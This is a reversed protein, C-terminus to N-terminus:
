RVEVVGAVLRDDQHQGRKVEMRRSGAFLGYLVQYAGPVFSPELTFPHIDLIYDGVQWLNFPYKGGLTEHDGNFRRNHGDIHIFTEWKGSVPQTVHYAIRFQYRAGPVLTQVQQGESTTVEWGLTVLQGGFDGEVPHSLSPRADLVCVDLPNQSSEPGLLQSSALLIESSRADLVPLNHRSHGASPASLPAQANPLAGGGRYLSNLLALDKQGFVLWRREPGAVLWEYAQTAQDFTSVRGGAHYAAGTASLGLLGLPEGPRAAHRYSDFVGKPSLQAALAPYYGLSLVLGGAAMAFLATQARSIFARAYCARCLDRVLLAGLPALVLVPLAVWGMYVLKRAVTGMSEFRSWHGFAQSFWVLAALGCLAAETLLLGFWLNGRGMRRLAHLYALYESPVFRPSDRDSSELWALGFPLAVVAAAATLWRHGEVRLSDPFRPHEVAFATLAKEPTNQFDALLLVLLAVVSLALVPSAQAGREWDRLCVAAMAALAFVASFALPGNVMALAGHVAFAILTVVLLLVRLASERQAPWGYVGVPASTVRGMALPIFASWPFLAHGLAGIVTDFTPMKGQVSLTFGVWPSYPLSADIRELVVWAGVCGSGLGLILTLGGLLDGARDNVRAGMIRLVLWSLGVGLAPITVGVLLGRALLGSLLGLLGALFTLVRGLGLGRRLTCGPEPAATPFASLGLGAVAMASAAMTVVDGLMTRAHLFYLPTTALVIAGFLATSRDSLRVLLIYVAVVGGLGWLALPLRGSWEHLGLLKFGLAISTFPLEGRGLQGVTVLANNAGDLALESAGFLHVALRRGLEAVNLEHPDWIGSVSFPVLLSMVVVAWATVRFWGAEARGSTLGGPM